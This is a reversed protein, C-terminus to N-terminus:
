KKIKRHQHESKTSVDSVKICATQGFFYSNNGVPSKVMSGSNDSKYVGEVEEM